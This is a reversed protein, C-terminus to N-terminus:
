EQQPEEGQEPYLSVQVYNDTRLYNRAATQITEIDLADVLREYTLIDRPDLDYRDASVLQSLWYSNERLNTERQRRQTEKVKDIDEQSPGFRQLSDIQLFVADTLEELREPATGFTVTFQNRTPIAARRATSVWVTRAVWTKACCRACGSVFCRPWLLWRM